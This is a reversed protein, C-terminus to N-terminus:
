QEYINGYEPICTSITNLMAQERRSVNGQKASQNFRKSNRLWTYFARDWDKFTTGRALHYDKFGDIEEAPNPWGNKRAMEIHKETVCFLEQIQTKRIPKKEKKKVLVKTNTKEKKKIRIQNTIYRQSELDDDHRCLETSKDSFVGGLETDFVDIYAQPTDPQECPKILDTLLCKIILNNKDSVIEILGRKKLQDAAHRIMCKTITQGKRGFLPEIHLDRLLGQWSVRYKEGIIGSSFDMRSKLAIVYLVIQIHPLGILANREQANIKTFM